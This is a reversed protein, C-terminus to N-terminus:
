CNDIPRFLNRKAFPVRVHAHHICYDDAARLRGLRYGKVNPIEANLWSLELHFQRNAIPPQALQDGRMKQPMGDSGKYPHLPSENM